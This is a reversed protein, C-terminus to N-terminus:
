FTPKSRKQDGRKAGGILNGWAQMGKSRVKYNRFMTQLVKNYKTGRGAILPCIFWMLARKSEAKCIVGKQLLGDAARFASARPIGSRDAVDAVSLPEGRSNKICNDEYGLYCLCAFLYKAEVHSLEQILLGLEDNNQKTFRRIPSAAKEEQTDAYAETSKGRLIRDGFYLADVLEGTEKDIVYSRAEGNDGIGLDVIMKNADM